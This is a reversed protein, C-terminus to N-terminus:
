KEEARREFHRCADARGSVAPGHIGTLAFYRACGHSRVSRVIDGADNKIRQWYGLFACDDCHAGPPGSGAWHAMGPETRRIQQELEASHGATLNTV